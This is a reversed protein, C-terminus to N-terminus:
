ACAKARGLRLWSSKSYDAMFSNQLHLGADDNEKGARLTAVAKANSLM